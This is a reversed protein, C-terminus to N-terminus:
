QGDKLSAAEWVDSEARWSAMLEPTTAGIAQRMAEVMQQRQELRLLHDIFDNISRYPRAGAKLRRHTAQSVKITTAPSPTTTAM